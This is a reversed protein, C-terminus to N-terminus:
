NDNTVLEAVKSTAIIISNYHECMKFFRKNFVIVPENCEGCQFLPQETQTDIALQAPTM